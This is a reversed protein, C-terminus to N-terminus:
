DPYADADWVYGAMESASRPAFDGIELCYLLDLHYYAGQYRIVNWTHPMGDLSGRVIYCDLEANHCMAAYVCAFANADGVGNILLSYSPTISQEISYDFREMLFAYLRSYKERVQQADQVYLEAATFVPQVKQQMKILADKGNQYTFTLAIIRDSGSEPYVASEVYPYEMVIDPRQISRDAIWAAFDTEEYNEVRLVVSSEMNELAQDIAAFVENMSGTKQIQLIQTRDYRYQITFAIAEVGNKVGTEYNISEVAYAGMPNSSLTYRVAADAYLHASGGVFGSVDMVNKQIGNEVTMVLANRMQTFTTVKIIEQESGANGQQHPEVSVREGEMWFGCGSLLLCSLICVILCMRKM